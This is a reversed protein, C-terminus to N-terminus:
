LSRTVPLLRLKMWQSQFTLVGKIVGNDSEPNLKQRNLPSIRSVRLMLQVRNSKLIADSQCHISGPWDM